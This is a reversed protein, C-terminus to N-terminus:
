KKTGFAHSESVGSETIRIFEANRRLELVNNANAYTLASRYGGVFNNVVRELSGKYPVLTAVGEACTGPKLGGRKENQIEESAMGRYSKWAKGNNDNIQSGPAEKTGAFVSGCIVADAGAALSKVLDAPYKIGGDALISVHGFEGRYNERIAACEMVSALTPMGFGTQIRTKCISGGGIGVRIADAGAEALYIFGDATAVNGAMIPINWGAQERVYSIMEKMLVSHGNAIDIAIMDVDDGVQGMMTDFWCKGEEGVGIAPVVPIWYNAEANAMIVEKIMAVQEEVGGESSTFRHLVGMGGFAGLEIAMTAETVTDMPSSILPVGVIFPGIKTRTDVNLRSRGESFVPKILVDDFALCEEM